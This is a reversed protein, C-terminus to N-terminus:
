SCVSSHDRQDIWDNADVGLYGDQYLLAPSLRLVFILELLDITRLKHERKGWRVELM